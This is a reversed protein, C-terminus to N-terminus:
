KYFVELNPFFVTDTENWRKSRERELVNFLNESFLISAQVWNFRSKLKLRESTYAYRRLIGRGTSSYM